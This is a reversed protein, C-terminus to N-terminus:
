EFQADNKYKAMLRAFIEEPDHKSEDFTTFNIGGANGISMFTVREADSEDLACICQLICDPDNGTKKIFDGYTGINKDTIPEGLYLDRPFVHETDYDKPNKNMVSCECNKFLGSTMMTYIMRKPDCGDTNFIHPKAAQKGM